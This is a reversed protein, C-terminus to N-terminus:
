ALLAWALAVVAAAVLVVDLVLAVAIALVVPLSALRAARALALARLWAGQGSGALARLRWLTGLLGRLGRRRVGGAAELFAGPAAALRAPLALVEELASAALLTGGAPLLLLALGLAARVTAGSAPWLAPVDVLVLWLVGAAVASAAALRRAARALRRVAPLLGALRRLLAPSPADPSPPPSPPMPRPAKPFSCGRAAYFGRGDEGEGLM